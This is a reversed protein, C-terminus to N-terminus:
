MFASLLGSETQAAPKAAEAPKAAAAKPDKVGAAKVLAGMAQSNGANVAASLGAFLSQVQPGVAKMAAVRANAAEQDGGATGELATAWKIASDAVGKAAPMLAIAKFSDEASAMLKGVMSKSLEVEDEAGILRDHVASATSAEAKGGFMKKLREKAKEIFGATAQQAGDFSAVMNIVGNAENISEKVAGSFGGNAVNAGLKVKIAKLQEDSKALIAAKNRGLWEQRKVFLDKIKSFWAGLWAVFKNWYKTIFAGTSKFFEKVGENLMEPSVSETICKHEFRALAITLNHMESLSDAAMEALESADGVYLDSPFLSSNFDDALVAAHELIM